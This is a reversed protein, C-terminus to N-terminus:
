DILFVRARKILLFQDVVNQGVISLIFKFLSVFIVTVVLQCNIAHSLQGILDLFLSM